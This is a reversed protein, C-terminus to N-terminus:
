SHSGWLGTVSLIQLLPLNGYQSYAASGWSAFPGKSMAYETAGWAIPFVLAASLGTFKHALLRDIVYPLALPIGWVVLFSYYPVGSVPLMGRFQFAFTAILFIYAVPLLIKFSQGRVFRLM